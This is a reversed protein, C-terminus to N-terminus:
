DHRLCAYLTVGEGNLYSAANSSVVVWGDRGLEDLQRQFNRPILLGSKGAPEFDPPITKRAAKLRGIKHVAMIIKYQPM